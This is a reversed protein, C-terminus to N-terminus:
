GAPCLHTNKKEGKGKQPLPPQFVVCSPPLFDSVQSFLSSLAWTHPSAPESTGQGALPLLARDERSHLNREVCTPPLSSFTMLTMKFLSAYDENKRKWPTVILSTSLPRNTLCDGCQVCPLHPFLPIPFYSYTSFSYPPFYLPPHSLKLDSEQPKFTQQNDPNFFLM